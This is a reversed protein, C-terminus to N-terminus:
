WTKSKHYNMYTIIYLVIDRKCTEVLVQSSHSHHILHHSHSVLVPGLQVPVFWSPPLHHINLQSTTPCAVGYIYVVLIDTYWFHKCIFSIFNALNRNLQYDLLKTNYALNARWRSNIFLLFDIFAIGLAMSGFSSSKGLELSLLSLSSYGEVQLIM